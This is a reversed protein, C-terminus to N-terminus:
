AFGGAPHVRKAVAPDDRRHGDGQADTGKQAPPSRTGGDFPCDFAPRTAADSRPLKKTREGRHGPRRGAAGRIHHSRHERRQSVGRGEADLVVVTAVGVQWGRAAAEGLPSRGARPSPGGDLVVLM